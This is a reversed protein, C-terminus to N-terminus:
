WQGELGVSLGLYFANGAVNVNTVPGTAFPEQETAVAIGQIWTMEVNSRVAWGPSLFYKAGFDVEGLFAMNVESAERFQNIPPLGTITDNSQVYVDALAFNVLGAFKMRVGYEYSEERRVLDGGFQWGLMVNETDMALNGGFDDFPVGDRRAEATFQEELVVVRLGYLISPTLGPSIHRSWTGDPNMVMRDRSLRYRIRGNIEFSNLSSSQVSEYTDATNFGGVSAFLPNENFGPDLPTFLNNPDVSRIGSPSEWDFFGFFTFEMSHDRNKDDRFLNRGVTLHLGPNIRYSAQSASLTGASPFSIDTAISRPKPATRHLLVLESEFYWSSDCIWQNSSLVRAWFSPPEEWAHESLAHPEELMEEHEFPAATEDDSVTEDGEEARPLGEIEEPSLPDAFLDPLEPLEGDELPPLGEEVQWHVPVAVPVDDGWLPAVAFATVLPLILLLRVTRRM